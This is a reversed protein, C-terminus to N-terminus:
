LVVNFLEESVNILNVNESEIETVDIKIDGIWGDVCLGLILVTVEPNDTSIKHWFVYLKYM